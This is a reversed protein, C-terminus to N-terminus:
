HHHILSSSETIIVWHYLGKEVRFPFICTQKETLLQVGDLLRDCAVFIPALSPWSAAACEEDSRSMTRGIPRDCSPFFVPTECVTYFKCLFPPKNRLKKKPPISPIPTTPSFSMLFTLKPGTKFRCFSRCNTHYFTQALMITQGNYGETILSFYM